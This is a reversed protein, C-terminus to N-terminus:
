PRGLARYRWGAKRWAVPDLINRGDVMNRQAVQEGVAVPDMDQFEDWETLVMTVDAGTLAEDLSNVYALEPHARRANDLAQPDYVVVDGGRRGISAAVDLAPSDRIDDSNPKFAAGLIAIRTGRYSGDILDLGLEVTRARRRLNIEDVERLFSVAQDVGLEGARAIFARIDKPLCGGGFGLGARLFKHGIRDDYGIAKSLATVDAGTTECVEAMANIFSIKTALFSNAAVKVLEATAFDTVVVPTGTEIVPAFAARLQQEAWDSHVGFVLRDPRLTDEVAFGERLFEPNWALEVDKSPTLSRMLKEMHAATGAPVTSKGVVLVKRTLHPSLSTFASEVHRLDASYEGKKQPTGVCIFHVDAFEAVEEYSTTFRLKGSSSHKSLLEPLGPEFFPVEGKALREIKEEDVDLGIVDFGLEVMCVAHT